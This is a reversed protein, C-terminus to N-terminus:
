VAEVPERQPEQNLDINAIIPLPHALKLGVLMWDELTSRLEDQCEQLSAGFAVVGMCPPIRGVFTGEKLKDYIALSLAQEVYGTLIFQAKM